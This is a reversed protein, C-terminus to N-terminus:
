IRMQEVAVGAANYVAGLTEVLTDGIKYPYIVGRLVCGHIVAVYPKGGSDTRKYCECEKWADFPKRYVEKIVMLAGDKDRFLCLEDSGLAMRFNLPELPSDGVHLASSRVCTTTRWTRAPPALQYEGEQKRLERRANARTKVMAEWDRRLRVAGHPDTELTALAYLVSIVIADALATYEQERYPATLLWARKEKDTMNEAPFLGVSIPNVKIEYNAKM